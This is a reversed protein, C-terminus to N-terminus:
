KFKATTKAVGTKIDDWLKDATVKVEKWADGSATELEKFKEAAQRQKARLKDIDQHYTLKADAGASEAKAVLLNIKASWEKLNAEMKEKYAEKTEM